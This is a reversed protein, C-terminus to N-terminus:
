YDKIFPVTIRNDGQAKIRERITNFTHWPALAAFMNSIWAPVAGGPDVDIVYRLHLNTKDIPTITLTSHANPVRVVDEVKPLYDPMEVMDVTIIKTVLDQKMIQHWIMDRNAIPWPTDVQTYYYLETDSIRTVLRPAVANYQWEHYNEVHYIIAAYQSLTAAM